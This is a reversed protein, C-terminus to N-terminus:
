AAAIKPLDKENKELAINLVEDVARSGGTGEGLATADAEGEGV